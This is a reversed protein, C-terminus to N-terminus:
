RLDPLMVKDGGRPIKNPFPGLTTWNRTQSFNYLHHEMLEKVGHVFESLLERRIGYYESNQWKIQDNRHKQLYMDYGKHIHLKEEIDELFYRGTVKLVYESSQYLKNNELQKIAHQISKAEAKTTDILIAGRVDYEFTLVVLREHKISPFYYGTSEVVFIPLTTETLWRKIQTEYISM